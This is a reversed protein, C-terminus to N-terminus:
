CDEASSFEPLTKLYNYAQAIVNGKNLEHNFSYDTRSIQQGNVETLIDVSAIMTAKDGAVKVVKVYANGFVIDQGLVNITIQKKLAM